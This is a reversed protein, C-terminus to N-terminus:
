ARPGLRRHEASCFLRGDADAFAEAQPLNVGCHACEVMRQVPTSASSAGRDPPAPVRPGKRRGLWMAGIAVVLVLLLVLYKM